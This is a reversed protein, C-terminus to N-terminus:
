YTKFLIIFCSNTLMISFLIALFSCFAIGISIYAIVNQDGKTVIIYFTVTSFVILNFLFSTELVSLLWQKYIRETPNNSLALLFSAVCVISLLNISPDHNVNFASILYLLIRALLLLGTWYRHKPNYPTQYADM